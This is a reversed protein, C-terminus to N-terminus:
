QLTHSLMFEASVKKADPPEPNVELEECTQFPIRVCVDFCGLMKHGRASLRGLYCSSASSGKSTVQSEIHPLPITSNGNWGRWVSLDWEFVNLLELSHGIYDAWITERADTADWFCDQLSNVLVHLKQFHAEEAM